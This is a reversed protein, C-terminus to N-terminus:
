VRQTAVLAELYKISRCFMGDFPTSEVRSLAQQMASDFPDSQSLQKRFAQKFVSFVNEVPNADPCYSPTYLVHYGKDSLAKRVIFSKHFAVNDMIVTHDKPFPLCRIFAAFRQSNYAGAITQHYSQQKTCAMVLSRSKWARPLKTTLLRQGKVCWGYRALGQKENCCTEDICIATDQVTQFSKLFESAYRIGEPTM